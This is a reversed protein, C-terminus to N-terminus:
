QIPPATGMPYVSEARGWFLEAVHYSELMWLPSLM